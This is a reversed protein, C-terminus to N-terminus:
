PSGYSILTPPPYNLVAASLMTKCLNATPKNYPILLHFKPKKVSDQGMGASEVVDDWRTAEYGEIHHALTNTVREPVYRSLTAAALHLDEQKAILKIAVCQSRPRSVAHRRGLVLCLIALVLVLSLLLSRRSRSPRGIKSMLHGAVVKAPVNTPKKPIGATKGPPPHHNYRM